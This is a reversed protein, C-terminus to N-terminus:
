DALVDPSTENMDAVKIAVEAQTEAPLRALLEAGLATPMNAILLAVTQSSEGALMAEIQEPPVRRLFEFPRAEIIASLREIIAQARQEGLAQELVERAFEVGGQAIYEAALLGESAEEFVAEVTDPAVQELKAMELSLAEIESEHLHGF